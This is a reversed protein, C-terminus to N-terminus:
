KNYMNYLNYMTHLNYLTYMIQAQPDPCVLQLVSIYITYEGTCCMQTLAAEKVLVYIRSSTKKEEKM